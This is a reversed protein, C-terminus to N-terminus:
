PECYDVILTPINSANGEKATFALEAPKPPPADTELVVFPLGAARTSLAQEVSVTVDFTLTADATGAPVIATALVQGFDGGPKAWTRGANNWNLWTARDEIVEQDLECLGLPRRLLDPDANSELHLRLMARLLVAGVPVAPLAAQLLARRPEGGGIVFLMKDNGHITNPKASEIWTDSTVTVSVSHPIACNPAAGAGGSTEGAIGTTPAGGAGGLPSGGDGVDAGAAGASAASSQAGAQPFASDGGSATGANSEPLTAEDPFVSCSFASVLGLFALWTATQYRVLVGMFRAGM